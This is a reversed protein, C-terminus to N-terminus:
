SWFPELFKGLFFLDCEIKGFAVVKDTDLITVLHSSNSDLPSHWNVHKVVTLALRWFLCGILALRRSDQSLSSAYLALM